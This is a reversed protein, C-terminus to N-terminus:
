SEYLPLIPIGSAQQSVRNRFKAAARRIGAVKEEGDRSATFCALLKEESCEEIAEMSCLGARILSHYDGRTLRNGMVGALDVAVSPVGIELRTLLRECRESLDLTPYLIEIVRAVTPLLDCTRAAVSRVAGAAGDLTGGFRTLVEEIAALPRDTIWLMCAVAKKARLTGQHQDSVARDLSRLIAYPVAQRQLESRWTQPEKQTSKKNLPFFIEDLEMSMQALAILTPDNILAADMGTLAGVLRTITEVEVGGQGALRGIETLLFNGEADKEVLRHTQLNELANMLRNRDWAWQSSLQSQRFAGFSGELFEVIEEATLGHHASRQAAALVRIILSRPDTDTALFRSKLDEPSGEVYQSWFSYEERPSLAMLYSAGRESFGLRGARGVINKYEAVSYPQPGPHELGVIIVASAPTNVGMALTTTAAIVRLTTDPARFQEEIVLREDRELDSIHFAVGGRLCNLLAQSALSPDGAPLADLADKAAPLDLSQSLYNACGRAEGRTERFVIVQKGEVILKKVLPIIWDQRSGKGWQQRIFGPISKEEGTDSDIYRFTGDGRIIGEDLPVPRERRSLLRAGLWRELGNSDGIVASLAILQPEIGQRQRMRLLTLVFELNVGRSADAIMQVEDVVITGIQELIHPAGLVLAAFKEYTMLCVDYHGRMLAPIDDTMEGTARITRLGFSGYTRNFYQHKDNVLAKLPLLFLARKRDLVGKLAALEGIMTKGSSTPASVILHEGDLLNFENIADIQLQNLSPISGAWAQLLEQPFGYSALSQIDSTVAQHGRQPFASLFAAGSSFIPWSLESDITGRFTPHQPKGLLAAADTVRQSVYEILRYISIKGNQRVEEAGQLAEILHDTLLGHGSRQDEWAPENATSATLILRGEGSLQAILSETSDMSRPLADVKLVKAGMGGSFCCDLFCIMRRAPIDSFWRTLTELPICSGALDQRDADYTVLEHTESGHGSFAIVVVDEPACAALTKFKEEIALRTAEEDVLITANGGLNDAFLAHLAVADRRACNLWNIEPSAYRDIGVFLGYFAM